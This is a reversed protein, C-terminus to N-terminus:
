DVRWKKVLRWFFPRWQDVRWSSSGFFSEDSTLEDHGNQFFHSTVSWSTMVLLQDHRAQRTVLQRTVLQSTVSSHRTSSRCQCGQNWAWHMRRSIVPRLLPQWPREFDRTTSNSFPCHLWRHMHGYGQGFKFADSLLRSVSQFQRDPHPLLSMSQLHGRM